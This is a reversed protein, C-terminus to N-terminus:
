KIGKKLIQIFQAPRNVLHSLFRANRPARNAIHELPIRLWGDACQFANALAHPHSQWLKKINFVFHAQRVFLPLQDM